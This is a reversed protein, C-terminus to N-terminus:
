HDAESEKHEAYAAEDLLNSVESENSVRAKVFWGNKFPSENVTGPVSELVENIEIIEGGMPMYIDNAAKVSEISGMVDGAEFVTGVSPLEVFVIDGVAEAAHDSIGITAIGNELNCYEHSKSFYIAFSRVAFSKRGPAAFKVATSAVSKTLNRVAFM